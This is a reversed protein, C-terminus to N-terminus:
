FDDVMLPLDAQFAPRQVFPFMMLEPDEEDPFFFLPHIMRPLFPRRSSVQRETAPLPPKRGGQARATRKHFPEDNRRKPEVQSFAETM